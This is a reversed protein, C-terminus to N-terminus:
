LEATTPDAIRGIDGGRKHSLLSSDISDGIDDRLSALNKIPSLTLSACRVLISV